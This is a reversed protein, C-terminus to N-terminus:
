RSTEGRRSRSRAGKQLHEEVMRSMLRHFAGELAVPDMETEGLCRRKLEELVSKRLYFRVPVWESLELSTKDSLEPGADGGTRLLKRSIDVGSHRELHRLAREKEYGLDDLLFDWISKRYGCGSSDNCKIVRGTMKLYAQHRKGCGPCNVVLYSGQQLPELDKLAGIRDLKPYIELSLLQDHIDRNPM